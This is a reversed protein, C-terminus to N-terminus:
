GTNENGEASKTSTVRTSSGIVSRKLVGKNVYQIKGKEHIYVCVCVDIAAELIMESNFRRGFEQSSTNAIIKQALSPVNSLFFYM